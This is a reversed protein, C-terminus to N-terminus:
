IEAFGFWECKTAVGLTAVGILAWSEGLFLMEIQFAMIENHFLVDLESVDMWKM